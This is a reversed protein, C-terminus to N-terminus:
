PFDRKVTDSFLFKINFDHKTDIGSVDYLRAMNDCTFLELQVSSWTGLITKHINIKSVM